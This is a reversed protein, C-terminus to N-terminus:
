HAASAEVADGLLREVQAAFRVPDGTTLLTTTGSGGGVGAVRATQRAVAESPDVITVGDGAVRAIVDALFSYHTCALVITDVGRDLLPQLHEGVPGDAEEPWRDEVAAAWGPCPHAVVEVGSAFRGVLDEFRAAAFTADTALVGIVGSRTVSAAPKVAPEMGVISVEPYAGRVEELAAASATNCAIVVTSAGRDVLIGVADRALRRIEGLSREGYPVNAQDALYVLDADPLLARVRTLIALGGVGSDYIGIM